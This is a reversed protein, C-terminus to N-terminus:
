RPIELHEDCYSRGNAVRLQCGPEKCTRQQAVLKELAGAIRNLATAVSNLGSQINAGAARVGSETSM